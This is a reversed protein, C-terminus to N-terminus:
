AIFNFNYYVFCSNSSNLISLSFGSVLSNLDKYNLTTFVEVWSNAATLIIAFVGGGGGVGGGGRGGVCM